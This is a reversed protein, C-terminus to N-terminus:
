KLAALKEGAAKQLTSKPNEQVAKYLARAEDKDGRESLLEACAFQADDAFVNTPYTAIFHKYSAIAAEKDGSKNEAQALTFDSEWDMEFHARMNRGATVAEDYRGSKYASILTKRVEKRDLGAPPPELPLPEVGHETGAHQPDKNAGGPGEPAALAPEQGTEAEDSGVLKVVALIVLMVAVAAAAGAGAAVFLWRKLEPPLSSLGQPAAASRRDMRVVGTDPEDKVQGLSVKVEETRDSPVRAVPNKNEDTDSVHALQDAPTDGHAAFGAIDEIALEDDLGGADTEPASSSPHAGSAPEDLVQAASPADPGGLEAISRQVEDDAFLVRWLNEETRKLAVGSLIERLTPYKELLPLFADREFWLLTTEGITWVNASRPQDSLLAMEGFFGGANIRAVEHNDKEELTVRVQGEVVLYFGDGRQGQKIVLESDGRAQHSAVRAMQTIGNDDLLALLHSGRQFKKLAATIFVDTPTAAEEGDATVPAAPTVRSALDPLAAKLAELDLPDPITILGEEAAPAEGGEALLVVRTEPSQSHVMRAFNVGSLGPLVESTIVADPMEEFFRAFADGGDPTAVVDFGAAQLDVVAQKLRQTNGHAILIKAGM